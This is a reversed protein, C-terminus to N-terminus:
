ALDTVHSGGGRGRTARTHLATTVTTAGTAAGWDQVGALNRASRRGVMPKLGAPGPKMSPVALELTSAEDPAMVHVWAAPANM